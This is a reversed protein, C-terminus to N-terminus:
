KVLPPMDAGAKKNVLSIAPRDLVDLRQEDFWRSEKFDKGDMEPSVLYQNCGTIYDARGTVAGEFGTIKDRVRIGHHIAFSM